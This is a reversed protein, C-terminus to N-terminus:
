PKSGRQDLLKQAERKSPRNDKAPVSAIYEVLATTADAGGLTGITRLVDIRLKDPVDYRKVYEGLATALLADDVTGALEAIQPVLDPTALAALPGAAGADGRKLLAFLRPSAKTEHRAALAEGATARVDPAADGLRALLLPTTAAAVKPDRLAGLAKLARRRLDPARHGAYLELVELARDGATALAGAEALKGLADLAAETRGPSCGTALAEVLPEGANSAGSTGLATAAEIAGGDDPAALTLRLAELREAPLAARKPSAVEAGARKGKGKTKGKAAPAPADAEAAAGRAVLMTAALACVLAIRATREPVGNAM